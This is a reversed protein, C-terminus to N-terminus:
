YSNLHSRVYPPNGVIVDTKEDTNVWKFFDSHIAGTKKAVQEDIDVGVVNVKKSGLENLKKKSLELFVGEGSSPDLVKDDGKRIAWNVISEAIISPTYISGLLKQKNM